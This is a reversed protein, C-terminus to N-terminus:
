NFIIYTMNKDFVRLVIKNDPDYSDIIIEKLIDM